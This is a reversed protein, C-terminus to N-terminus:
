KLKAYREAHADSSGCSMEFATLRKFYHGASYEDTMGIGGHLQIAEQGVTRAEEGIKSKAASVARGRIAPDDGDAEDAAYIAMSRAMEEAVSMDVMRHQLVQFKGIPRGFQVRTKLYELTLANLATMTGVADCCLAAVTRDTAIDILAAGAGEPGLLAEAGVTVDELAVDAAGNSDVIPFSLRTLGEANTPVLFLSLGDRTESGGGTRAAVLIIDATDAGIVVPKTGNIRYGGANPEARASIHEPPEFSATEANALALTLEGAVIKPLYAARQAENGYLSILRAAVVVTPIYASRVLGGGLIELVIAHDHFDGGTGGYVEDIGIGLLGLEAMRQWIDATDGHDAVLRRTADQLLTQSESLTFDM